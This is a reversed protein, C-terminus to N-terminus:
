CLRYASSKWSTHHMTRPPPPHPTAALLIPGHPSWRPTRAQTRPNVQATQKSGKTNGKNRNRRQSRTGGHQASGSFHTGPDSKLLYDKMNELHPFLTALSQNIIAPYASYYTTLCMGISPFSSVTELCLKFYNYATEGQGSRTLRQSALLFTSMHKTLDSLSTLPQSLPTLLKSVVDGTAVGHKALMTDVIQRPDLMYPALAPFTTRLTDENAEGLSTLLVTTLYSSSFSFDNHRTTAMRHTNVVAATANGAHDAPMAYAPRNRYVAPQGAAVHIPNTLNVPMSTWKVDSMVLTLAGTVDHMACMSRAITEVSETWKELNHRPDDVLSPTISHTTSAM